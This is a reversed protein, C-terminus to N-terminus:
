SAPSPPPRAGRCCTPWTPSARRRAAPRDRLLRADGAGGGTRRPADAARRIEAAPLRRLPLRRHAPGRRGAGALLASAGPVPVVAHGAERAERVLKYGPDSISRRAPTASWRWRRARPSPPSCSRGSGSRCQPRSLRHAAHRHWLPAAARRDGAHGRLRHPRRRGADGAGSDFYRRSQRHAHRRCLPRAGAPPRRDQARRYRLGAREAQETM